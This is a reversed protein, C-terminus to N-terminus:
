SLWDGIEGVPLVASPPNKHEGLIKEMWVVDRWQGLKYGCKEYRAAIKYGFSEHFGISAPHPYVICAYANTINQRLLAKELATYLLRGIGQRGHGKKVYVTTEVSHDYASREHFRWAYSYGLIEGNEVAAIYPFLASIRRVRGEFEERSPVEREFTVATERVYPAYIALLEEADKPTVLRLEMNVFGEKM